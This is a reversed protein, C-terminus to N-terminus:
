RNEDMRSDVGQSFDIIESQSFQFGNELQDVGDGEIGQIPMEEFSKHISAESDKDADEKLHYDGTEDVIRSQTFPSKAGTELHYKQVAKEDIPVMGNETKLYLDEM